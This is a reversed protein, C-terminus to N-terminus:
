GTKQSRCIWAGDPQIRGAGLPCVTPRRYQGTPKRGVVQQCEARSKDVYELTGGGKDAPVAYGAAQHKEDALGNANCFAPVDVNQVAPPSAPTQAQAQAAATSGLCVAALAAVTALRM